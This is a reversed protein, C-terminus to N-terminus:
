PQITSTLNAALDGHLKIRYLCTYVPNGWNSITRVILKNIPTDYERMSVQLPFRQVNDLANINYQWRGIQIWTHDLEESIGLAKGTFYEPKPFLSFTAQAIHNRITDNTVQAWLEMDRPAAGPDFTADKPIHEVIVESPSMQKPLIIGVQAKGGKGPACWCDGPEEWPIFITSPSNPKNKRVGVLRNYIASFISLAPYQLTPSTIFPDVLAGTGYSFYNIRHAEVTTDLKSQVRRAAVELPSIRKELPSLRQEVRGVKRDIYARVDQIARETDKEKQLRQQWIVDMSSDGVKPSPVRISPLFGEPAKIQDLLPQLLQRAYFIIILLLIFMLLSKVLSYLAGTIGTRSYGDLFFAVSRHFRTPFFEKERPNPGRYDRGGFIVKASEAILDELRWANMPDNDDEDEDEESEEGVEERDSEESTDEEQSHISGVNVSSPGSLVSSEVSSSRKSQVSPVSSISRQSGISSGAPSSHRSPSSRAPSGQRSPADSKSPSSHRSLQSSGSRESRAYDAGEDGEDEESVEEDEELIPAQIKIPKKNRAEEEKKRAEVEKAVTELNEKIAAAIPINSNPKQIVPAALRKGAAGYAGSVRTPINPRDPRESSRLKRGPEKTRPPALRGKLASVLPSDNKQDPSEM